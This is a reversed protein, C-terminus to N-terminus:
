DEFKKIIRAPNGAIVVNDPVDKTVVSGAGIVVNNGVTIGPLLIVSGGLWCDNGITIPGDYQWGARRLMKDTVHHNPTFFQCNPGIFCHAGIKVRGASLIQLGANIFSGEGLEFREPYEIATIPFYIEASESILPAFERLKKDAKEFDTKAENNIGQILQSSKKVIKQLEVEKSYQYWDGNEIKEFIGIQSLRDIEKSDLENPM